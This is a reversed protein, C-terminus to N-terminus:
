IGLVEKHSGFTLFVVTEKSSQINCYRACNYELNLQYDERDNKCEECIMYIIRDGNGLKYSSKGRYDYRYKKGLKKYRAKYPDALIKRVAEQLGPKWSAFKKKKLRRLFNPHYLPKYHSM